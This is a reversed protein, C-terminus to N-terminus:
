FVFTVGFAILGAAGLGLCVGGFNNYKKSLGDLRDYEAAPNASSGANNDRQHKYDFAKAVLISGTVVGLVGIGLSGYRIITHSSIPHDSTKPAVPIATTSQTTVTTPTVSITTGVPAKPQAENYSYPQNQPVPQIAGNVTLNFQGNRRFRSQEIRIGPNQSKIGYVSYSLSAFKIAVDGSQEDVILGNWDFPEPLPHENKNYATDNISTFVVPNEQSGEVKLSGYVSLGTFSNFLFHCGEHVTLQKGIPIVIDKDVFYPNGTSDLTMGGIAGSLHTEALASFSFLTGIIFVSPSIKM